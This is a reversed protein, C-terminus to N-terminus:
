YEHRGSGIHCHATTEPSVCNIFEFVPPSSLSLFLKIFIVCYCASTTVLSEIDITVMLEIRLSCIMNRPIDGYSRWNVRPKKIKESFGFGHTQSRIQYKVMLSVALGYYEEGM